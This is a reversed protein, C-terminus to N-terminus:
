VSSRFQLKRIEEGNLRALMHSGGWGRITSDTISGEIPLAKGHLHGGSCAAFNAVMSEVRRAVLKRFGLFKGDETVTLNDSKFSFREEGAPPKLTLSDGECQGVSWLQGAAQAYGHPNGDVFEFDMKVYVDKTENSYNVVEGWILLYDENLLYYGSDYSGDLATYFAGAQDESSGTFASFGPTPSIGNGCVAISPDKRGPKMMILHHNYIGNSMDALTGDNFVYTM